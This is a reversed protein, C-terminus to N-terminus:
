NLQISKVALAISQQDKDFNNSLRCFLILFDVITSHHHQYHLIDVFDFSSIVRGRMMLLSLVM